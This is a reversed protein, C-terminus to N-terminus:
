TRSVFCTTTTRKRHCTVEPFLWSFEPFFRLPFEPQLEFPDYFNRFFELITVYVWSLKRLSILEHQWTVVVSWVLCSRYYLQDAVIVEFSNNCRDYPLRAMCCSVFTQMRDSREIIHFGPWVFTQMRDSREIMHLGPWVFSQIGDSREIMHFGPWVFTQMRDSGPRDNFM